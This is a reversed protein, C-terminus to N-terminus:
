NIVLFKGLKKVANLRAVYVYTGSGVMDGTENRLNWTVGGAGNVNNLRRILLGSATFISIETNPPVNGFVLPREAIQVRYPNPFVFISELDDAEQIFSLRNAKNNDMPNGNSDLLDRVTISYQVGLSGLRNDGALELLVTQHSSDLAASLITGDPELTYNEVKRASERNLEMNFNLKLLRKSVMEVSQLYLEAQAPTYTFQVILSDQLLPTGSVDRLHTIELDHSGPAFQELFSLLAQKGNEGRVISAPHQNNEVLLYHDTEFASNGMPESFTLLVKRPQLVEASIFGPPSNPTASSPASFGSEAQPFNSDIQSIRYTYTIGTSIATDLYHNEATSDHLLYGTAATRRYIRYMEATPIERWNLQIAITNLAVAELQQPSAPQDLNNQSEFHLIGDDSNLFLDIRGNGDFDAVPAANSNINNRFWAIHLEQQDYKLIYAEPFPTFIIESIGDGDIDAANLGNQIGPQISVGQFNKQLLVEYSGDQTAQLITMSWFKTNVNSELIVPPENKMVSILEKKGDGTIDAAQFLGNGGEGNLRISWTFQYENAADAEYIYLDGDGDEIIIERRGDLDLDELLSWPVGFQNNGETASTLDQQETLQYDSEIDFIRWRAFKLGFLEPEPDDDYNQFRSAWFNSSDQWVVTSPLEGPAPAALLASFNGFGTFLHSSAGNIPFASWDRPIAPFNSFQMPALNGNDFEAAQLPGFTQGDILESYVIEPIANNNLDGAVPMFFGNQQLQQREILLNGPPFEEPLNLHFFNGGNDEVSILGASNRLEIYYEMNGSVDEQSITFNHEDQFYRSTKFQSFAQQGSERFYLTASTFDGTQFQILFGNQPGIVLETEILGSLAPPTRDITVFTKSVIDALGIQQLRLELTYIDDQLDSVDWIALTDRVAQRGSVETILNFESPNEGIGYSLTYSILGPSFVTGTIVAQGKSIGDGSAPTFLKAYGQEGIELSNLIDVHGHGFLEDWGFAGVDRAGAYLAGLAQENSYEPFHSFILALAASVMPASFSTGTNNGYRSGFLTSHIAQGPATIDLKSGFNPFGPFNALSDTAAVAVTEDFAAPYIIEDSGSNGSAAVFVVGRSVGYQIADRLLYSFASDGFSLNVIKCGNAIAYIIAEAVDDEELFGSATGARLVMIRVGPAIGSIGLQNNQAAAIIGAIPTGHGSSGFEDKPDNDPVLFDGRDPFDPANTFDWGIVDDIYGNGDDDIGNFDLSDRIGNGNRDEATNIWLQGALDEHLYDVGTDIVGVIVSPDGLELDWAPIASVTRLYWQSSVRPDDVQLFTKYAQNKEAYIVNPHNSFAARAAELAEETAFKLVHINRLTPPLESNSKQFLHDARTIAHKSFLAQIGANNVQLAAVSESSGSLKIDKSFRVVLERAEAPALLLLIGFLIRLISLSIVGKLSKIFRYTFNGSPIISFQLRNQGSM